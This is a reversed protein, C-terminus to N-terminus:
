KLEQHSEFDISKEIPQEGVMNSQILRIHSPIGTVSITAQIVTATHAVGYLGQSQEM